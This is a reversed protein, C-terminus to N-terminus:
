KIETLKIGKGFDTLEPHADNALSDLINDLMVYLYRLKLSEFNKEIYADEKELRQIVYFGSSTEVVDSIEGIGLAFAAEEYEKDFEGRTFYVGDLTTMTYDESYRGIMSKMSAGDELQALVDKAVAYNAEVDDGDDNGIYVHWTRIFNDSNIYQLVTEDDAKIRGDKYLETELLSRMEELALYYRLCHDTMANAELQKIYADKGGAEEAMSDIKAQVADAIEKKEPTIEYEECLATLVANKKANKMVFDTLKEEFDDSEIEEDTASKIYNAALYRIEEYYVDADDVTMFVKQEDGKGRIPGIGSSCSTLILAALVLFLSILRKIKM